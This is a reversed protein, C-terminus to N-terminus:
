SGLTDATPDTPAADTSGTPTPDPASVAPGAPPHALHLAPEPCIMYGPPLAPTPAPYGPSPSWGVPPYGPWAAAGVVPYGYGLAVPHVGARAASAPRFWRDAAPLLLLVVVVITLALVLLVGLGSAGSVLDAPDGQAYLTDLFKSQEWDDGPPVGDSPDFGPDASGAALMVPILLAGSCGQGLCLLLQAGAAVFVLIRATNSGRGLPLATAALWGALLLAPVGTVLAMFLNGMREDSVEAPDADPVLRLARDIQGDYRVAAVIVLGILLLLVVVTALQLWFAVTVIAPRAPRAPAADPSTM